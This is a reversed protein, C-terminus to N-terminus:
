FFHSLLNKGFITFLPKGSHIKGMFCYQSYGLFGQNKPSFTNPFLAYTLFENPFYEYCWIFSNGVQFIKRLLKQPWVRWVMKTIIVNCGMLVTVLQKYKYIIPRGPSNYLHTRVWGSSLKSGFDILPWGPQSGPIRQGSRNSKKQGLPFFISINSNKIPSIKWVWYHSVQGL